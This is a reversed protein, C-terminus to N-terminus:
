PDLRAVTAMAHNGFVPNDDRAELDAFVGICLRRLKRTLGANALSYAYAELAYDLLEGPKNRDLEHLALRNLEAAERLLRSKEKEGGISCSRGTKQQAKVALAIHRKM